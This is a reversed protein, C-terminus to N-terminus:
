LVKLMHGVPPATARDARHLRYIWNGRHAHSNRCPGACRNTGYCGARRSSGAVWCWDPWGRRSSWFSGNSRNTRAPWNRHPGDCRRSNVGSRNCRYPRHSDVSSGCVWHTRPSDITSRDPRYKRYQRGRGQGHARYGRQWAGYLGHIRHTRSNHECARNARSRWALSRWDRLM